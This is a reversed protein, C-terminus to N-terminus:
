RRRGVSLTRLVYANAKYYHNIQYLLLLKISVIFQICYVAFSLVFRPNIDLTQSLLKYITCLEHSSYYDYHNSCYLIFSSHFIETKILLPKFTKAHNQGNVIVTDRKDLFLYHLCSSIDTNLRRVMRSRNIMKKVEAVAGTTIKPLDNM